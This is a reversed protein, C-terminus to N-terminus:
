GRRQPFRGDKWSDAGAHPPFPCHSAGSRPEKELGRARLEQKMAAVLSVKSRRVWGVLAHEFLSFSEVRM